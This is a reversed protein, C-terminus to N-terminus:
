LKLNTVNEFSEQDLNEIVSNAIKFALETLQQTKPKDIGNIKAIRKVEVINIEDFEIRNQGM